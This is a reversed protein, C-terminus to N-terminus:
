REIALRYQMGAFHEIMVILGEWLQQPETNHFYIRIKNERTTKVAPNTCNVDCVTIIIM